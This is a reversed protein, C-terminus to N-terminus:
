VEKVTPDNDLEKDLNAASHLVLPVAVEGKGHRTSYTESTGAAGNFVSLDVQDFLENEVAVNYM